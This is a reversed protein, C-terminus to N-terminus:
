YKELTNTYNLTIVSIDKSSSFRNATTFANCRNKDLAGLYKSVTTFDSQFKAKLNDTPLFKDNESTLYKQLLDNLEFYFDYFEDANDSEATFGGLCEEM